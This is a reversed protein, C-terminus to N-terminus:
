RAGSCNALDIQALRRGYHDATRVLGRTAACGRSECGGTTDTQANIFIWTSMELGRRTLRRANWFLRATSYPEHSTICLVTARLAVLEHLTLTINLCMRTELFSSYRWNSRIDSVLDVQNLEVQAEHKELQLEIKSSSHIFTSQDSAIESTRAAYFCALM